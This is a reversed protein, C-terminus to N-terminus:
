SLKSRLLQAILLIFNERIENEFFNDRNCFKNIVNITEEIQKQQHPTM